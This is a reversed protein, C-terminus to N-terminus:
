YILMKVLNSFMELFLMISRKQQSIQDKHIAEKAAIAGLDTAKIERFSGSIEAFPTRAGELLVIDPM